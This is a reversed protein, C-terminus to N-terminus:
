FKRYHDTAWDFPKVGPGSFRGFVVRVYSGKPVKGAGGFAGSWVQGPKLVQARAPQFQSALYITAHAPNQDTPSKFLALAFENAVALQKGSVNKFTAAVAWTGDSGVNLAVVRFLMLKPATENWGLPVTAASAAAPLALALALVLTLKRM